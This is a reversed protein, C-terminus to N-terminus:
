EYFYKMDYVGLGPLSGVMGRMVSPGVQPRAKNPGCCKRINLLDIARCVVRTPECFSKQEVMRGKWGEMVLDNLVVNELIDSM